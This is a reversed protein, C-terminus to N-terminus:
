KNFNFYKSILYATLKIQFFANSTPVNIKATSEVKEVKRKKAQSHPFGIGFSNSLLTFFVLTTVIGKKM